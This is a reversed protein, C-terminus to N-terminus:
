GPRDRPPLEYATHPSRSNRTTTAICRATRLERLIRQVAARGIGMAEQLEARTMMGQTAILDLAQRQRPTLANPGEGAGKRTAIRPDAGAIRPRHITVEFSSISDRFEPARLGSRRAADLMARIGTGRNEVLPGHPTYVDELIDVLVRNRTHALGATGLQDITIPGYLGGPNTIVLQEAHLNIRIPWARAAPSLDRHVFANAIAERLILDPIEYSDHRDTGTVRTERRLNRHLATILQDRIEPIPGEITRSDLLRVDPDENEAHVALTAAFGPLHAQPYNGFVILGAITPRLAGDVRTAVHRAVLIEEESYTAIRRSRERARSIFDSLYERDLDDLGATTVTECDHTPQSRNTLFVGVEYDNLRRNGDGVRVYSGNRIGAGPYYCPKDSAPVEPIEATVLARGEQLHIDVRPTIPPHMERCVSALDDRIKRADRVGTVAFGDTEDAGLVIVGGGPTNAFASVTRWLKAPLATESRKAEVRTSDTGSARLEELIEQLENKNMQHLTRPGQAM